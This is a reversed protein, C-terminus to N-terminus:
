DTSTPHMLAPLAAPEDAAQQGPGAAADIAPVPPPTVRGHAAMPLSVSVSRMLADKQEKKVREREEEAQRELAMKQEQEERREQQTRMLDAVITAFQGRAWAWQSACLRHRGTVDAQTFLGVLRMHSPPEELGATEAIKACLKSFAALDLTGTGDPDFRQLQRCLQKLSRPSLSITHDTYGASVTEDVAERLKALYPKSLSRAADRDAARHQEQVLRERALREQEAREVQKRAASRRALTRLTLAGDNEEEEEEEEKGDDEDDASSGSGEEGDKWEESSGGGRGRGISPMRLAMSREDLGKEAKGMAAAAAAAAAAAEAQEGPTVIMVGKGGRKTSSAEQRQAGTTAGAAIEPPAPLLPALEAAAAALVGDGGVEDTRSGVGSKKKRTKTKSKKAPKRQAFSGALHVAARGLLDNTATLSRARAEGDAPRATDRIAPKGRKRHPQMFKVLENFDIFGDGDVDARAHMRRMREEAMADDGAGGNGGGGGGEGSGSSQHQPLGNDQGDDLCLEDGLENRVLRGFDAVNLAGLGTSDYACLVNLLRTARSVGDSASQKALRRMLPDPSAHMDMASELSEVLGRCVKFSSVRDLAGQLKVVTEQEKLVAEHVQVYQRAKLQEALSASRGGHQAAFQMHWRSKLMELEVLRAKVDFGFSMLQEQWESSARSHAVKRDAFAQRRERLKRYEVAKERYRPSAALETDTPERGLEERRDAELSALLRRLEEYRSADASGLAAVLEEAQTMTRAEGGKGGGGARERERQLNAARSRSSLSRHGQSFSMHRLDLSGDSDDDDSPENGAEANGGDSSGSDSRGGGSAQPRRRGRRGGRRGHAADGSGGGDSEGRGSSTSRGREGGRSRSRSRHNRKRTLVPMSARSPPGEGAASVAAITFELWVGAKVTVRAKCMADSTQMTREFEGAGGERSRVIYTLM